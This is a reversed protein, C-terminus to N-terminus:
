SRPGQLPFQAELCASKTVAECSAVLVGCSQVIAPALAESPIYPGRPRHPLWTRPRNRLSVIPAPRGPLARAGLHGDGVKHTGPRSGCPRRPLRGVCSVSAHASCLCTVINAKKQLDPDVLSPAPISAPGHHGRTCTQPLLWQLFRVAFFRWFITPKTCPRLVAPSAFVINTPSM